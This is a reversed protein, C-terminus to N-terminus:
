RRQDRPLPQAELDIAPGSWDAPHGGRLEAAIHERLLAMNRTNAKFFVDGVWGVVPVASILFDVGVNAVMRAILPAPVGLRRAEYVLWASLGQAVLTGVGPIFNLAADAGFRIGTGPVRVASDLLGALRELRQQAEALTEHRRTHDHHTAHAATVM